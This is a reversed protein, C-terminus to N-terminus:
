KHNGVRRCINKGMSHVGPLVTVRDVELQMDAPELESHAHGSGCAPMLGGCAYGRHIYIGPVM